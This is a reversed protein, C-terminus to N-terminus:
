DRIGGAAAAGTRRGAAPRLLGFFRGFLFRTQRLLLLFLRGLRGGFPHHLSLEVHHVSLLKEDPIEGGM